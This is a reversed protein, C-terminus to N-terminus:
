RKILNKLPDAFPPFIISLIFLTFRSCCGWRLKEENMHIAKEINRADEESLASIPIDDTPVIWPLNASNYGMVYLRYTHYRLYTANTLSLDPNNISDDNENLNLKV